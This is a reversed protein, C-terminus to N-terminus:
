ETRIHSPQLGCRELARRYWDGDDGRKTWLRNARGFHLLAGRYDGKEFCDIGMALQKEGLRMLFLVALRNRWQEEMKLLVQVAYRDAEREEAANNPSDVCMIAIVHHGIEHALTRAIMITGTSTWWLFRPLGGLIDTIHLFISASESATAETYWGGFPEPSSFVERYFDPSDEAPEPLRDDLWIQGLGRLDSPSIYALVTAVHRELCRPAGGCLNTVEVGNIMVEWGRRGTPTM